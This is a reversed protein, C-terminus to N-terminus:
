PPDPQHHGSLDGGALPDGGRSGARLRYPGAEAAVSGVFLDPNLRRWGSRFCDVVTTKGAVDGAPWGAETWAANVQNTIEQYPPDGV